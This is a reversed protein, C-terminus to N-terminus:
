YTQKFCQSVEQSADTGAVQLVNGSSYYSVYLNVAIEVGVPTCCWM